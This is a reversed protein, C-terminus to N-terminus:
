RGIMRSEAWTQRGLDSESVFTGHFGYPVRSPLKVTALLDLSPKRADLVLLESRGTRENHKFTLLYGDDEAAMPDSPDRPVFVPEAGYSGEDYVHKTVVPVGGDAQLDVKAIGSIKPWPEAIAMYLYRNKRGVYSRNLQGAELNTEALVRRSSRGTKTNLRIESLLSRLPKDSENFIADAPTMCSGLVVVEDGEEWANWLHFCFCDPVDIWQIRSEDLDYKPLLGYRCTKEPNFIVPSGGRLMETMKFVVQQDPIVVFRRTIAFDHMMTAEPLSIAVEPAKRGDAGIRFVYLHPPMLPNYSLAFLDGTEPDIKPHAIMSKRHQGDFDFREVTELDGDERIRVLYPQDDESMALLRGNHYVLGANAVGLGQTPDVIGALSRAFYLALRAVGGHGHLEGIAKPFLPRGEQEEVQLRYTRTFRSCHSVIGDKFRVAHIMGDGDFFHHGGEPQFRPNAGNRMYVGKLSKPLNGVVELEHQVPSEEVPSFNGELQVEPDATSPLPVQSEIRRVITQEIHDLARALMQQFINRRKARTNKPKIWEQLSSSSSDLVRIRTKAQEPTKTKSDVPTPTSTSQCKVMRRHKLSEKRPSRVAKLSVAPQQPKISKEGFATFDNSTAAFARASSSSQLGLMTVNRIATDKIKGGGRKEADM